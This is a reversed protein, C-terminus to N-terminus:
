EILHRERAEAIADPMSHVGLKRYISRVHSHVTNFSVFLREAAERKSAGRALEELVEIERRSLPEAVGSRGDPQVARRLTVLYGPDRSRDIIADAEGLLGDAEDNRGLMRRSQALAILSEAVALPEGLARIAPLARALIEGGGEADGRRVLIAGLIAKAYAETPTMALGHEDGLRVADRGLAEALDPDGTELEVRALLARAGVADMWMGAEVAHNGGWVLHDRAEEFEGMRALAFGLMVRVTNRWLTERDAEFQYARRASSLMQAADDGPFAAGILAATSDISASGDPMPDGAPARIAAALADNGEEHRGLFHMTWAKVVGLRRDSEIAEAGLADLWGVITAIRGLELLQLYSEGIVRAALDIDGAAIAHRVARDADGSDAYWHAARQHLIQLRDPQRRGLEIRLLEALLHHYRYWERRDDLPTIFVNAQEMEALLQAADSEGTIADALSGCVTDVISTTLMFRLTHPELAILVQETLYDIVHRNSAGFTAVFDMREPSDRMSLYALYLGAPWGETRQQLVGV